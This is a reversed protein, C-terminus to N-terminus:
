GKKIQVLKILNQLQINRCLDSKSLRAHFKRKVGASDNREVSIVIDNDGASPTSTDPPVEKLQPLEAERLLQLVRTILQADNRNKPILTWDFDSSRLQVSADEESIKVFDANPSELEKVVNDFSRQSETPGTRQSYNFIILIFLGVLVGITRGNHPERVFNVIKTGLSM